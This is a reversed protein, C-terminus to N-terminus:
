TKEGGGKPLTLLMEFVPSQRLEMKGGVEEVKRRLNALGGTERLKGQPVRGDNTFSLKYSDEGETVRVRAVKGDAHRLVNTAHASIAQDIVPLLREEGPLEGAIELRIGLKEAELRTVYYPVQWHEPEERILMDVNRNWFALLEDREEKRPVLCYRKTLLLCQGINDHIGIKIQLLERSMTVYEITGMLSKLRVNMTRARREKERLEETMRYERTLNAAVIEAVEGIETPLTRRQFGIVSGDPLRVLKQEASWAEGADEGPRPMELIRRWSEEVDLLPTGFLEGHIQDMRANVLLPPGGPLAYCLGTPLLDLGEKVSLNSPHASIWKQIRVQEAAGVVSLLLQTLILTAAPIKELTAWGPAHKLVAGHIWILIFVIGNLLINRIRSRGSGIRVSCFFNYLLLLQILFTWLALAGQVAYFLEGYTM